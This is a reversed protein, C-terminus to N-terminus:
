KVPESSPAVPTEPPKAVPPTAQEAPPSPNAMMKEEEERMKKMELEWAAGTSAQRDSKVAIEGRRPARLSKATIISVPSVLEPALPNYNLLKGEYDFIKITMKRDDLPGAFDLTAFNRVRISGDATPAFEKVRKTNPAAGTHPGATLPSVTLDYYTYLGYRLGSAGPKNVIGLGQQVDKTLETMHVDGSLFVVGDIGEHRLRDFLYNWEDTYTTYNEPYPNTSLVQSGTCIVNFSIPYSSKAQTQSWKLANILWDVQAKGLHQKRRGFIAPDTGDTDRYWRNDLMYFNVDGWNFFTFVGPVDPLGASPNGNFLNFVKLSEAKMTYDWGANNPGYDHDDWISYHHTSALLAQMEPLSRDTTWRHIMGTRSWFDPERYYINDGLWLMLDPKQEHIREFIAYEAGYPKGNLRDYGGDENIYACSGAAVKFDFIAHGSERHRWNRPTQFVQPIPGSKSYGAPYTKEVKVGDVYIEYCYHKGARVDDALLKAVYATEKATHIVDTTKALAADTEMEWYKAYVAAPADTQTWILVEAMTSYGLMPGNKLTAGQLSLGGLCTIVIATARLPLYAKM